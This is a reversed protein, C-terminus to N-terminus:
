AGMMTVLKLSAFSKLGEVGLEAGYGSHGQPERGLVIGSPAEEEGGTRVTVSGVRLAHAVQRALGCDRTWATAVLGFPTDNAMAIAEADDDFGQVCLVPGFIEERVIPMSGDVEDFITPAVYCGGSRQVAGMVVARAGDAIGAQIYHDVRDRQAPSALPGFETKEDLPDAPRIHTALEVIKELLVDKVARHVLLRTTAVCVQGSNAFATQVVSTAVYDLNVTDQFVIHPSKGGCELIVPKGNSKACLEMVSRGTRTSGTFSILDVNPHLALAAGVTEGLGPVVNLVGEPIGAELALEAIRLASSPAIESPKLVVSNGVALAPALKTIANVTPFNWPTILGVVGRPEFMNFSVTQDFLPTSQGLLQMVHVATTRLKNPATVGADFVAARTPKGMELTDFLALEEKHEEILDALNQLVEARAAPPLRSWKGEEFRRRAVSVAVDLDEANGQSFTCLASETAPNINDVLDDALSSTYKGDIFPNVNWSINPTQASLPM